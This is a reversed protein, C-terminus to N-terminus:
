IQKKNNNLVIERLRSVIHETTKEVYDWHSSKIHNAVTMNVNKHKIFIAKCLTCEIANGNQKVIPDIKLLLPAVRRVLATAKQTSGCKELIRTWIGRIVDKPLGYKMALEKPSMGNVYDILANIANDNRSIRELVLYRVADILAM